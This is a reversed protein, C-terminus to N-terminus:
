KKYAEHKEEHQIFPSQQNKVAGEKLPIYAEGYMGRVPREKFVKKRLVKKRPLGTTNKERKDMVKPEECKQVDEVIGRIEACEREKKLQEKVEEIEERTLRTVTNNEENLVGLNLKSLEWNQYMNVLEDM